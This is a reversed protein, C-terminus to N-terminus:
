PNLMTQDDDRGRQVEIVGDHFELSLRAKQGAVARSTVPQGSADRVLAFGRQLTRQPGQGLIERLLRGANDGAQEIRRNAQNLVVTHAATMAIAARHLHAPSHLLIMRRQELVERSSVVCRAKVDAIFRQQTATLTGGATQIRGTAQMKLTQFQRDVTTKSDTVARQAERLVTAQDATLRLGAVTLRHHSAANVTHRSAELQLGIRQAHSRAALRVTQWDAAIMREAQLLRRDLAVQITHVDRQTRAARQQITDAILKIVKSPTDAVRCAVEDLITQDRQHGIGTMVPVPSLCVAQALELENIWHLDAVAGGGRIIVLAQIDPLASAKQIAQLLSDKANPGQFVATFYHFRCIGFRELPEAGAQFDGLGAAGEPSIVAISFFDEPLALQRNRHIIGERELTQRIIKLQHAMVGVTYTADIAQIVLRLGFRDQVEVRAQVLVQLGAALDQGTHRSFRALMPGPNWIAAKASAVERTEDREVLELFVGSPRSDVKTLEARIWLAEPLGQQVCARIRQMVERLSLGQVPLEVAEDLRYAAPADQIPLWRAFPTLDRGAPVYWQRQERSWYAGLRKVEDKERYEVHLFTESM